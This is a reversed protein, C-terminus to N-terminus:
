GSHQGCLYLPIWPRLRRCGRGMSRGPCSGKQRPKSPCVGTNKTSVHGVRSLPSSDGKEDPLTDPSNTEQSGTPLTPHLLLALQTGQMGGWGAQLAQSRTQACAPTGVGLRARGLVQM